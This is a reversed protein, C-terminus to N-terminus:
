YTKIKNQRNHCYISPCPIYLDFFREGSQCANSGYCRYDSCPGYGGVEGGGLDDYNLSGDNEYTKM